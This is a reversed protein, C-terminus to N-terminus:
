LRMGKIKMPKMGIGFAQNISGINFKRKRFYRDWDDSGRGGEGGGTLSSMPIFPVFPISGGRAKFQNVPAGILDRMSMKSVPRTETVSLRKVEPTQISLSGKRTGSLVKDALMSMSFKPANGFQQRTEPLTLEGRAYIEKRKSTRLMDYSSIKAAVLLTGTQEPLVISSITRGGMQMETKPKMLQPELLQQQARTNRLFPERYDTIWKKPATKNIGRTIQYNKQIKSLTESELTPLNTEKKVLTTKFLKGYKSSVREGGKSLVTIDGTFRYLSGKTGVEKGFDYQIEFFPKKLISYEGREVLRKSITGKLEYSKKSIASVFYSSRGEYKLSPFGIDISRTGLKSTLSETATKYAEPSLFKRELALAYPTKQSVIKGTVDGGLQVAKTGISSTGPAMSLAPRYGKTYLGVNKVFETGKLGKPVFRGFAGASELNIRTALSSVKPSVVRLTKSAAKTGVKVSGSFGIWSAAEAGINGIAAEVPHKRLIDTSGKPSIGLPEFGVDWVSAYHVDYKTTRLIDAFEKKGGYGAKTFAYSTAVNYEKGRGLIDAVPKGISFLNSQLYFGTLAIEKAGPPLKEYQGIATKAQELKVSEPINVNYGEDTKIFTTGPPYDTIEKISGQSDKRYEKMSQVNETQIGGYIDQIQKGTLIQGKNWARVPGVNSTGETQMVYQEEPKIDQKRQKLVAQTYRYQKEQEREQLFTTIALRNRSIPQTPKPTIRTTYQEKTEGPLPAVPGMSSSPPSPKSPAVVEKNVIPPTIVQKKGSVGREFVM